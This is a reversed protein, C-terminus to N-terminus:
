AHAHLLVVFVSYFSLNFDTHMENDVAAVFAWQSLALKGEERDTLSLLISKVDYHNRMTM